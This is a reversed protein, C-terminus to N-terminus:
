LIDNWFVVGPHVNGHCVSLEGSCIGKGQKILTIIKEDIPAAFRANIVNVFINEKRLIEEAEFAQALVSGYAVITIKAKRSSSVTISKGAEFPKSCSENLKSNETVYDKPYRIVVPGEHGAAFELALKMEIDNAPATLVMNPMMRMFGIDM